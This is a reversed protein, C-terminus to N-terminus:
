LGRCAGVLGVFACQDGVLVVTHVGSCNVNKYMNLVHGIKTFDKAYSRVTKQRLWCGFAHRLKLVCSSTSALEQRTVSVSTM